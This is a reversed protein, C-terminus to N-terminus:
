INVVPSSTFLLAYKPDMVIIIPTGVAMFNNLQAYERDV